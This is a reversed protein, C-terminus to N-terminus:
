TLNECITCLTCYIHDIYFLSQDIIDCYKTECVTFGKGNCFWAILMINRKMTQHLTCFYYLFFRLFGWISINYALIIESILFYTVTSIIQSSINHPFFIRLM